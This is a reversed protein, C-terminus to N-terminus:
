TINPTQSYIKNGTLAVQGTLGPTVTSSTTFEDTTKYITGTSNAVFLNTGDYLFGGNLNISGFSKVFSFSSGNTSKYINRGAENQFFYTSDTRFFAGQFSSAVGSATSFSSFGNSTFYVTNSYGGGIAFNSASTTFGGASSQNPFSPKAGWSSWSPTGSTTSVNAPYTGGPPIAWWTAITDNYNDIFFCTENPSTQSWSSGDSSTTSWVKGLLSPYNHAFVGVWRTGTWLLNHPHMQPTAPLGGNSSVATFNIGDTSNSLEGNINYALYYSGNYGVRALVSDNSFGSSTVDSWSAGSDTSYRLSKGASAVGGALLIPVEPVNSFNKWDTGNFHQMTSASGESAQTTDNRMMGEAPTGSFAGGTPMRLGSESNAQNLDTLEKIVKTIAM